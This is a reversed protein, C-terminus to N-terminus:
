NVAEGVGAGQWLGNFHGEAVFSNFKEDLVFRSIMMIKQMQEYDLAKWFLWENDVSSNYDKGSLIFETSIKLSRSIRYLTDASYGKRGTEIEYLFKPSIGAMEALQERTYKKHLRLERIRKGSIEYLTDM